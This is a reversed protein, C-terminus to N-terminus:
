FYPTRKKLTLKFFIGKAIKVLPASIGVLNKKRFFQQTQALFSYLDSVHVQVRKEDPTNTLIRKAWTFLFNILIM